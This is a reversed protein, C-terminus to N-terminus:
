FKDFATTWFSVPDVNFLCCKHNILPDIILNQPLDIFYLNKPYSTLCLSLSDILFRIAQNSPFQQRPELRSVDTDKMEAGDDVGPIETKGQSQLPYVTIDEGLLCM